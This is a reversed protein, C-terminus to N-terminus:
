YLCSHMVCTTVILSSIILLNKVIFKRMNNKNIIISDYIIDFISTFITFMCVLIFTGLLFSHFWTIIM